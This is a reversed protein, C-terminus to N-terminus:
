RGPQKRARAGLGAFFALGALMLAYSTPEPVSATIAQPVFDNGDYSFVYFQNNYQSATSGGAPTVAGLFDNDNALYLTHKLVGNVMVDAGFSIGELKSPINADSIGAANLMARIDLFQSTKLAVGSQKRLDAIGSVETAGNLDVLRLQKTAANNDAGLGKGDRELVLFQHENLALIESSNFNKGGIQNDYAYQSTAGSAIDIKVIRNYRGGDGGDQALPSQMFGVLTKGDPTIALGEMGKNTIRGSSANSAIEVAGQASLNNIAFSAPLEFVRTRQGSARDFQYVYPGYEDSIFVSKGDNSVRIAEPDLRANLANSSSGSGFNDSRGSFYFKNASNVVPAGSGLTYSNGAVSGTGLAGSGYNLATNSYLLTTSQLSPTLVFPLGSGSSNAKLEMAVTHFRPIYSTTDDILPNFALANPGRDPLALFTNGGAWALGSGMGGLLNAATGNELQYGLGSKDLAAGSLSGTAILELAAFAQPAACAFATAILTPLLRPRLM